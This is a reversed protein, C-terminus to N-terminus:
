DQCILFFIWTYMLFCLNCGWELQIWPVRSYWNFHSSAAIHSGIVILFYCVYFFSGSMYQSSSNNILQLMQSNLQNKNAFITQYFSIINTCEGSAFVASSFIQSQAQRHVSYVFIVVFLLGHPPYYHCCCCRHISQREM